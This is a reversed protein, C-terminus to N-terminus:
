MLLHVAKAALLATLWADRENTSNCRFLRSNGDTHCIKICDSDQLSLSVVEAMRLSLGSYILVGKKTEYCHLKDELLVFRKKRWTPKKFVSSEKLWLDGEHTLLKISSYNNNIVTPLLTTTAPLTSAKPEVRRSGLADPLIKAWSCQKRESRLPTKWLTERGDKLDKIQTLCIDSKCRYLKEM